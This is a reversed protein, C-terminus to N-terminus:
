AVSNYTNCCELYRKYKRDLYMEADKYIFDLFDKTDKKRYVEFVATIGNHNSAERVNSRIGLTQFYDKLYNCLDYTGTISCHYTIRGNGNHICGDGDFLGRIFHSYLSEDINPFTIKLSKNPMMGINELTECMHKSFMNLRWMNKYTYGFTHKNSNDIYELEKESGIENRMDELIQKDEEQLSIHITRKQMCNCGDAYLFGLIYAKNPTDIEDFYNENLKYKRNGVGTRPINHRELVKAIPKHSYGFTKGIKVTSMNQNLYMDIIQQEQEDTFIIENYIPNERSM